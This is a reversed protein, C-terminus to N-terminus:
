GMLEQVLLPWASDCESEFEEPLGIRSFLSAFSQTIAHKFEPRFRGVRFASVDAGAIKFETRNKAVRNTEIVSMQRLLIINGIRASDPLYNFYFYAYNIQRLANEAEQQASNRFLARMTDVFKIPQYQDPKLRIV